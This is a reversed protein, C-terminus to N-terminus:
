HGLGVWIPVNEAPILWPEAPAFRAEYLRKQAEKEEQPGNRRLSLDRTRIVGPASLFDSSIV